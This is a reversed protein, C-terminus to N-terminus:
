TGTGKGRVDKGDEVVMQITRRLIKEFYDAEPEYYPIIEIETREEKFHPVRKQFPIFDIDEETDDPILGARRVADIHWKYVGNDKDQKRVRFCTICVICKQSGQEEDERNGHPSAQERHQSKAGTRRRNDKNTQTANSSEERVSPSSGDVSIKAKEQTKKSTM